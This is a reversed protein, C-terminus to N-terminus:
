FRYRADLVFRATQRTSSPALLNLAALGVVWHKDRTEWFGMLDLGWGGPRRTLNERDEFRASRYVARSSLYWRQSSAWTAGLVATHLPIYPVEMDTVMGTPQDADAYDSSGRQYSYKGYASWHRSFMHNIGLAISNLRAIEVGPTDELVDTSSLNLLQPNRMEELFPLSPTRLDVGLTGPNDIRLHDVRASAFTRSDLELGLQAVLRKQRGGAELLRDEVAIGATDVSNLTSTSLPRLWDQYALRLTTGTAGQLVLGLRPSIVQQTDNRNATTDSVTEAVLLASVNRGNVQHRIQQLALAADVRATPNIQQQASLTLATYRRDIANAGGFLLIDPQLQGNADLGVIRGQGLVESVQKELVHELAMSWRTGPRPEVSHRLQFDSFAKYPTMSLGVLGALSGVVFLSPYDAVRTVDLSRGMKFWTQSRPSWRYSLGIVGQQQTKDFQTSRVDVGTGLLDLRNRGRLTMDFYNAYAFLNLHERDIM